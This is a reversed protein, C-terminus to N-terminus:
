APKAPTRKLVTTYSSRGAPYVSVSIQFLKGAQDFYRRVFELAHTDPEVHLAQAIDAPVGIPRVTQRVEELVRGTAEHILDVILRQDNKLKRRILAGDEATVYVCWWALPPGPIGPESRSADIQMWATGPTCNLHEALAKNAVVQRIRHITRTSSSSSQILEEVSSITPEYNSTPPTRAEVKTGARKRRSILGLNQLKDLAVRVTGRSVGFAEALETEGPLTSGVPYTGAAIRSVLTDTVAAYRQKV